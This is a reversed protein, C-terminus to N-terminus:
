GRRWRRRALGTAGLLTLALVSSPEPVATIMGPSGVDLGSVSQFAGYQGAVAFTYRPDTFDFNPDFVMSQYVESGGASLGAHGGLSSSGDSLTFGGAAYSLSTVLNDASDFLNVADNQGLGLGSGGFTVVQYSGLTTGWWDHFAEATLDEVFVISEGAAISLPGFTFALAPNATSDDYKWGTLDVASNGFNTLEWWDEGTGFDQNSQIETIVLEARAEAAVFCAATAALLPLLRKRMSEIM